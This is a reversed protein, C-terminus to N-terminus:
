GKISGITIGKVFFKQFFPYVAIIPGMTLMCMAMRATEQPFQLDKLSILGGLNSNGINQLFTIRAMINYLLYQLSYLKENTILILSLWYDNWYGLATFFAIVALGAQSLPLIIHLYTKFESCGDLRVSEILSEPINNKIFTKLVIANWSSFAAPIILAWITNSLRLVQSCVIYWPVLGGGFLMPVLIFGMMFKRCRFEPRSLPYAFLSVIFVHLFTGVVTVFITVAYARIVSNGASLSFKYGDMSFVKPIVKYGDKLASNDSFSIGLVLLVPYLCAVVCFVFFLNLAINARSSIRNASVQFYNPKMQYEKFYLQIKTSEESL